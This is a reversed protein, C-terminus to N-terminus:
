DLSLLLMNVKSCVLYGFGCIVGIFPVRDAASFPAPAALLSVLADRYSVSSMHKTM